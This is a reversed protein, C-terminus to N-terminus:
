VCRPVNQGAGLQDIWYSLGDADPVRNFFAVYLEALRQVDAQPAAAAKVQITLNVTKDAFQLREINTLTDVGEPGSVTYGSDRICM